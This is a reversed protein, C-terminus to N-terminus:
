TTFGKAMSSSRSRTRRSAAWRSASRFLSRRSARSVGSITASLAPIRSASEATAHATMLVVEPPSPIARAARLVELGDVGPMRLDTVVVDFVQARLRALAEDGSAVRVTQHGDLELAEALLTGLKPEDDAILVRAM